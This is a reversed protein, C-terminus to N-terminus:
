EMYDSVPPPEDKSIDTDFMSNDTTVVPPSELNEDDARDATENQDSSIAHTLRCSHVWIYTAGHKVLVQKGEHGIVKGPGHWQNSNKLKYYVSDGAVCHADGSTRIQHHLTRRVRKSAESQTFAQRAAHTTSLDDAVVQSSMAGELAPLNSNLNHGFVIQNPSFGSFNKLLFKASLVWALALELDSKTNTITKAMTYGPIAIHQEVLGNTCPSEAATICVHINVNECLLIFEHNNFKGENDVLFKQPSGFISIWTQFIKKVITEKNSQNIM